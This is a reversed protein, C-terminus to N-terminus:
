CVLPANTVITTPVVIDPVVIYTVRIGGFRGIINVLVNDLIVKVAKCNTRIVM